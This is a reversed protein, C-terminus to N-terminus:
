AATRVFTHRPATMSPQPVAADILEAVFARRSVLAEDVHGHQVLKQALAEHLQRFERKLMAVDACSASRERAWQRFAQHAPEPAEWRAIIRNISQELQSSSDNVHTASM